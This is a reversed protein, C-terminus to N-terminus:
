PGVGEVQQLEYSYLDDLNFLNETCLFGNAAKGLANEIVTKGTTDLSDYHTIRQQRFYDMAGNIDKEIIKSLFRRTPVILEGIATRGVLGTGGCKCKTKGELRVYMSDIDLKYKETLLETQENHLQGKAPMRCEDCLTGVLDQYLVARLFRDMGLITPDMQIKEGMLRMLAAPANNAHFTAMTLHGTMAYDQAMLATGRDNIEGAYVMDPDSRAVGVAVQGLTELNVKYQTLYDIDIEPPIEMGVRVKQAKREDMELATAITTTKGSGTAGVVLILGSPARTARLFHEQIEPSHGLDTLSKKAATKGDFSLVRIVIKYGGVTPNSEYRLEANRVPPKLRAFCRSDKTFISPSKESDPAIRPNQYVSRNAEELDAIVNRDETFEIPRLDGDIRMRMRFFPANRGELVFDMHIDSAGLRMSLAFIENMRQEANSVTIRAEIVATSRDTRPILETLLSASSMGFICDSLGPFQKHNKFNKRFMAGAASEYRDQRMLLLHQTEQDRVRELLVAESRWSEPSGQTLPLPHVPHWGEGLDLRKQILLGDGKTKGSSLQTYVSDAFSPAPAAEPPLVAAPPVIPEHVPQAALPIVNNARPSAVEAPPPPPPGLARRFFSM